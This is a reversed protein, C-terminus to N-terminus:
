PLQKKMSFDYQYSINSFSSSETLIDVSKVPRVTGKEKLIHGSQSILYKIKRM